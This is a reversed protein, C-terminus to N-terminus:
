LIVKLNNKCIDNYLSVLADVNYEADHANQLDIKFLSCVKDFSISPMSSRYQKIIFNVLVMVDITGSHFYAGFFNNDNKLFWERIFRNDFHANYAVFLFKDKKSFKDCHKDLFKIFLEFVKNSTISQNLIEGKNLTLLADNDIEVDGPNFTYNFTDIIENNIQLAASIQFIGHKKEDLGTTEVDLFLLKEM